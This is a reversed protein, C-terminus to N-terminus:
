LIGYLSYRTGTDLNNFGTLIRMSSIADTNNLWLAGSDVLGRSSAANTFMNSHNGIAYKYQSTSTYDLFLVMMFGFYGAVASAGAAVAAEDYFWYGVVGRYESWFRGTNKARLGWWYYNASTTDGNIEIRIGDTGAGAFTSRAHLVLLLHKYTAPISSLTVDAAPAGLVTQAIIQQYNYSVIVRETGTDDLRYFGDSKPYFKHRNAAPAAPTTGLETYEFDGLYSDYVAQDLEGIPANVNASSALQGFGIPTHYNASM